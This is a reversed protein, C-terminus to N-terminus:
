DLPTAILNGGDDVSVSFNNGSPSTFWLQYLQTSSLDQLKETLAFYDLPMEIGDSMSATYGQDFFVDLKQVKDACITTIKMALEDDTIRLFCICPEEIEIDLGDTVYYTGEKLAYMTTKDAYAYGDTFVTGVPLELSTGGTGGVNSLAEDVYDESAFRKKPM